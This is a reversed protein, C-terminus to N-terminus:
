CHDVCPGGERAERIVGGERSEKGALKRGTDRARDAPVTSGAICWGM